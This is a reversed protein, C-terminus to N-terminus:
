LGLIESIRTKDFGIITEQDEGEDGIMIVPVGMQGTKEIMEDRKKEDAAVDHETYEVNNEQFFEKAIKCYGCMPTSYIIVKKM